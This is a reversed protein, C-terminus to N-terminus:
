YRPLGDIGKTQWVLLAKEKSEYIWHGFENFWRAFRELKEAQTLKAM